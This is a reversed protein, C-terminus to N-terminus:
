DTVEPQATLIEVLEAPDASHTFVVWGAAKFDTGHDLQRPALVAAIYKAEVEADLLRDRSKTFM